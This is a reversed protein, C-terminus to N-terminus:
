QSAVALQAARTEQIFEILSLITERMTHRGYSIGRHRKVARMEHM